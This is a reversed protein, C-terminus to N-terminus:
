ELAPSAATAPKDKEVRLVGTQDAFFYRYGAVTPTATVTYKIGDPSILILFDYGIEAKRPQAKVQHDEVLEAYNLAYRRKRNKFYTQGEITEKMAAIAAEENPAKVAPTTKEEACACLFFLLFLSLATKM